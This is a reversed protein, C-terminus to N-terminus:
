VKLSLSLTYSRPPQLDAPRTMFEENLINRVIFHLRLPAIIQWGMRADFLWTGWPQSARYAKVGPIASEFAADINEINSYFRASFGISIKGISSESDFKFLHRFRFKLINEKSTNRPTDVAANFDTQEPDIWTYGGLLSQKVRGLNGEGALNIEVGRIRANGINVSKFGLGFLPDSFTGWQGFRFEMMNSFEQHFYCLDAFGRWSRIQVVQKLGIEATWGKETDLSDNPYIVLQGVRTRVYKEAISPFRFGQGFSARLYGGKWTEHNLGSRFLYQPDLKKGSIRGSEMRGGLSANLKGFHGDAQAYVAYNGAEQKNYLEGSVDSHSVSTGASVNIKELLRHQVLYEAYYFRSDSNQSTNNKNGTFFYRTRIKHVWRGPSYIIYPDITTRLSTYESMTSGPQGAGGLPLLAGSTDNQWLLFNGGESKQTNAALGLTLGQIGNVKYRLHANARYRTETEGDRYGEDNFYHAGAVLSLNRIKRRHSFNVGSTMQSRSGWWKKREDEPSDYLGSYVSLTTQPKDGPMVTRMNIVGNLAASGFLASSAGKLVEVQEMQEIPIFNWKVDNADGSLMPLDDVLVLVRSGAGYSFGSGGRINAQGDIVTVGPVQEVAAEMTNEVRNEVLRSPLIDMSIVTQELRQELRGATVVVPKWTAVSDNRTLSINFEREGGATLELTQERPTYGLFSFIFTQKGADCELRYYGNADAATGRASKKVSITAFPLAEGGAADTIKGKLVAPQALAPLAQVLLIMPLLFTLFRHLAPTM